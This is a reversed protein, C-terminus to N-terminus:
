PTQTGTINQAVALPVNDYELLNDTGVTVTVFTKSFCSISITGEEVGRIHDGVALKAPTQIDPASETLKAGDAGYSYVQVYDLRQAPAIIDPADSVYLDDFIDFHVTGNEPVTLRHQEDPNFETVNAPDTLTASIRSVSPSLTIDGSGVLVMGTQTTLDIPIAFSFKGADHAKKTMSAVIDGRVVFVGTQETGIKLNSMFEAAQGKADLYIVKGAKFQPKLGNFQPVAKAEGLDTYWTLSGDTQQQFGTPAPTPSPTPSATPTVTPSPRATATAPAVTPSAPPPTPSAKVSGCGAVSVALLVLLIAARGRMTTTGGLAPDLKRRGARRGKTGWIINAPVLIVHRCLPVPGVSEGERTRRATVAPPVMSRNQTRLAAMM